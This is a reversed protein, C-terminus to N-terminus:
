RSLVESIADVHAQQVRGHFPLAIATRAFQATSRADGGAIPADAYRQGDACLAPFTRAYVDRAALEQLIREQDDPDCRLVDMVLARAREPAHVRVRSGSEAARTYAARLAQRAQVEAALRPLTALGVAASLEPLKGNIGAHPDSGGDIGFNITHRVRADLEDDHTAVFGGEGTHLLKTAHLSYATAAGRGVIEDLGYAHAADYVVPLGHAEALADLAPDVAVGFLHVPLIAVTRETIAASVADRALNLTDFEVAAFVPVLGASEIALTTARFTLPTTVVEGGRPLDLALLAATLASTGSASAVVHRWGGAEELRRELAAVLPGGNSWRARQWVGAALEAFLDGDPALPQGLTAIM